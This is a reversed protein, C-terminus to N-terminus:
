PRWEERYEPHDAYPLALLRVAAGLGNAWGYAYEYPEDIDNDAVEAYADVIRRKAEIEALVRAPDHRAAHAEAAGDFASAVGQAAWRRRNKLSLGLLIDANRDWTALPGAEASQRALEEDEDYRDRLFQVLDTTM